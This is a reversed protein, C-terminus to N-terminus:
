EPPLLGSGRAKTVAELRGHVDLKSYINITHRKVTLMSIGLRMGIEKNTLREALLQLVELERNTLPEFINAQQGAAIIRSQNGVRDVDGLVALIQGAFTKLKPELSDRSFLQHLLRGMKPGLDVFIRLLREPQAMKLAMELAIFCADSKGQADYLLAELALLEVVDLDNCISQAFQRMRPLLEAAEMLSAVTGQAILIKPLILHPAAMYLMFVRFLDRDFAAAWRSPADLNGQMLELQVKAAELWVRTGTFGLELDFTLADELTQRAQRSRGSAQYTLALGCYGGTTTRNHNRYRQEVVTLFAEEALNLDNRQYHLWGRYVHAWGASAPLNREEALRLMHASTRQLAKFDLGIYDFIVM